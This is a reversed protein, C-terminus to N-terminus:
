PNKRRPSYPKRRGRAFNPIPINRESRRRTVRLLRQRTEGSTRPCGGNWSFPGRGLATLALPWGLNALRRLTSADADGFGRDSYTGQEPNHSVKSGSLLFRRDRPHSHAGVQLSQLKVGGEVLDNVPVHPQDLVGRRIPLLSPLILPEDAQAGCAAHHYGKKSPM